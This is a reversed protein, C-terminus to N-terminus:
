RENGMVEGISVMTHVFNAVFCRCCPIMTGETVRRHVEVLDANKLIIKYKTEFKLQRQQDRYSNTSSLLMKQPLVGIKIFFIRWRVVLVGSRFGGGEGWRSLIYNSVKKYQLFRRESIM